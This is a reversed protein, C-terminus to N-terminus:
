KSLNEIISIFKLRRKKNKVSNEFVRNTLVINFNSENIKAKEKLKLIKETADDKNMKELLKFHAVFPTVLLNTKTENSLDYFFFSKSTSARYGFADTYGMSFDNTYDTSFFTKYDQSIKNLGERLLTKDAKDHILNFIDVKESEFVKIKKLAKDSPLIGVEFDDYIEKIYNKFNQNTKPTEENFYSESSFSFFVLAKINSSLLLEKLFQDILWPDMKIKLLILLHEIIEWLNLKLLNKLWIFLSEFPYKNLYKYPYLSSIIITTIQNKRNVKFKIKAKKELITRFKEIWIDILPLELFDEKFAISENFRYQSKNNGKHPLYEEYRSLLFFCASFFDFPMVSKKGVEFFCKVGDWEFFKIEHSELGKENLLGIQQFFLEDSIPADAYSFKFGSFDYFESKSNTILFKRKLILNLIHNFIYEIRPSTKKCYILIASM